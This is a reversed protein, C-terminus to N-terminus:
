MSIICPMPPAIFHGIIFVPSAGSVPVVSFYLSRLVAPAELPAGVARGTTLLHQHGVTVPGFSAKSIAFSGTQPMVTSLLDGYVLVCAPCVKTNQQAAQLVFNSASGTRYAAAAPASTWRPLRDHHVISPGPHHTPRPEIPEDTAQNDHDHNEGPTKGPPARPVAASM